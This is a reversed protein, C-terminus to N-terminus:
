IGQYVELRQPTLANLMFSISFGGDEDPIWIMDDELEQEGVPYKEQIDMLQGM